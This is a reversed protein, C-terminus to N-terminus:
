FIPPSCTVIIQTGLYGTSTHGPLPYRIPIGPLLYGYLLNTETLVEM